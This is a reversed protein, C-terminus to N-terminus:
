FYIDYQQKPVLGAQETEAGSSPESEGSKITGEPQRFVTTEDHEAQSRLPRQNKNNNDHNGVRGFACGRMRM